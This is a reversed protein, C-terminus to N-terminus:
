KINKVKVWKSSWDFLNETGCVSVISIRHYLTIFTKDRDCTFKIGSIFM